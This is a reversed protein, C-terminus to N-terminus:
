GRGRGRARSGDIRRGQLELLLALCVGSVLASDALNFVPWVRVDIWDVVAGRLPGPTRFIRDVLNGIAGGLILGFCVAWATSGLRRAARAIVVVVALAILSLLLTQGQAISFAAGTNRTHRLYLLGGLLRLPARDSLLQVVLLKSVVDLTVVVLMTGVLLAVRRTRSSAADVAHEAPGPVPDSLSTGRAAQLDRM